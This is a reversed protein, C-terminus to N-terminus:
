RIRSPAYAYLVLEVTAEFANTQPQHISDEM